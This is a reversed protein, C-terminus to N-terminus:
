NEVEFTGRLRIDESSGGVMVEFTGPEVIRELNLDLLSLDYPTLTFEVMKKERPNLTIRKFGKLEKAPTVVSSLCDDIYLQVVEDGKRGGVNEVDLTILVEADPGFKKAPPKPMIQLNSYEFETYSLGYGFEFLPTSSMDVYSRKPPKYNYYVPLQGVHRPFTIPLRGGPNYDGFLVDAVANGGQQGCNWAEVIAPVNEAIWRISLPRGNILVVVTPTGTKVVAKVLDQQLGTPDLSAVDCGEGVTGIEAKRENEGIVVIAVDAKKAASQAEAINNIDTKFVDCGKVYTVKTRPSVKNKVGDLVTVIGQLITNSIYDGLQNRENAANPGIVAISKINKNLPLLNNQNKLLVIGKRAARLALQQHKKCHVIEVARDPDVYPNEFLGLLFKVRLIRRVARDITDMSVNAEEVNEILPKWYGTERSINVDVGAQVSLKGAEKQTAVIRKKIFCRNFAGGESLVFGKFGLQGRLIDTLLRKSGHAPVGDIEPYTAMVSLAGAKKIGAEWPPLFIERLMRESIEMSGQELGGVPQSQGPFHCLTAVVRDNASIDNGQTGEVIAEAIRACLYPDESYSEQNRGLRPDRIPEIVLTCLQHVGVARSERAAACYIQRVLDMDWCSGIAPGEPFITGGSAMFGHVGEEIQILPIGLRTKEIAIKQLENLFEAQQRPGKRLVRNGVSFLGGIPGIGEICTGKALGRCEDLESCLEAGNPRFKDKIYYAATMNMQGVKEELTMRALVDAVRKEIPETPDLYIPKKLDARGFVATNTLLTLSLTLTILLPRKKLSM